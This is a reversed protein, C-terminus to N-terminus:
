GSTGPTLTLGGGVTAAALREVVMPGSSTVQVGDDAATVPVNIAISKRAPIRNTALTTTTGATIGTLTVKIARTGPNAVIFEATTGFPQAIAFSSEMATTPSAADLAYGNPAATANLRLDAAVAIPTTSSVSVAYGAGPPVHSLDVEDLSGPAVIMSQPALSVQGDLSITVILRAANIGPNLVSIRRVATPQQVGYAVYWDSALTPAGLAISTGAAGGTTDRTITQEVVVQGDRAKVVAGVLDDRPIDVRSQHPVPLGQVPDPTIVGTVGSQKKYITVDVDADQATPNYITLVDTSGKATTGIAIYWNPSVRTACPGIATTTGPGSVLHEVVLRGGIADVTVGPAATPYIDSVLVSGRAKPGVIYQARHIVAGGADSVAVTVNAADSGMNALYLRESTAPTSASGAPCYWTSGLADVSALSHARLEADPQAARTPTVAPAASVIRNAFVAALLAVVLVVVLTLRADFRRADNPEGGRAPDGNVISM